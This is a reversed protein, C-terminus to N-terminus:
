AQIVLKITGDTKQNRTVLHGKKRAEQQQSPPFVIADIHGRGGQKRPRRPQTEAEKPADGEIELHPVKPRFGGDDHALEM